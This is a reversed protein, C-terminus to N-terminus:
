ADHEDDGLQRTARQRDRESAANPAADSDRDEVVKGELTPGPTALTARSPPGIGASGLSPAEPLIDATLVRADGDLETRVAIRFRPLNISTASRSLRWRMACSAPMTSVVAPPAHGHRREGPSGAPARTWARRLVPYRGGAPPRVQSGRRDDRPTREHRLEPGRRRVAHPPCAGVAAAGQRGLADVYFRAILLGGFLWANDGGARSLDVLLVDGADMIRRPRITSVPTSVIARISPYSLFASLKSISHTPRRTPPVLRARPGNINGSPLSRHITRDRGAVEARFRPEIFLRNLAELTWPGDPGHPKTLLTLLASRLYQLQRHPPSTLHAFYLDRMTDVFQAAVIEPDAGDLEIPNFGRPREKEALELLHVRSAQDDPVADLLRAIADGHPDIFTFGRGSRLDDAALAVLETSKGSGTRGLLLVHRAFLSEPVLM